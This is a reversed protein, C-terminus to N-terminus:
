RALAVVVVIMVVVVAFVGSTMVVVVIVVVFVGSTMQGTSTPFWNLRDPSWTWTGGVQLFGQPEFDPRQEEEAGTHRYHIPTAGKCHYTFLGDLSPLFGYCIGFIFRRAQESMTGLAALQALSPCPKWNPSALTVLFRVIQRPGGPFSFGHKSDDAELLWQHRLLCLWFRDSSGAIHWDRCAALAQAVAR